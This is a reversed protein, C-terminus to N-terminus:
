CIGRCSDRIVLRTAVEHVQVTTKEDQILNVLMETAIHGMKKMPQEVTTLAPTIYSAEPIDDFGAVSLDEPVRLGAERAAEITGIASEDNAAFIATPPNPLGLLERARLHGTERRFDGQQILEADVPIGAKQLGDEYGRRRQNASKLEERGGIFGIRRHGLGTLYDMMELAGARNTAIVTPYDTNGSHPDVAVLPGTAPFTIAAPTIIIVGDAVSGSILSVHRQEWAARTNDGRNGSAYLILDYGFTEIAQNIGLLVQIAFPDNLDLAILGITNTKHSRLSRAALNSTYGLEQITHQVKEYTAAAVDDKDNLVRSVTSVSVGAARAVDQITISPKQSM